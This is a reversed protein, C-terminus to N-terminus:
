AEAKGILERVARLLLGDDFAGKAVFYDAGAQAGRVRDEPNEKYSVIMVPISKLRPDNKILTALEIGDMRPMDVDTIVLDYDCRRVADWGAMGDVAVETVYGRSVLLRRELDRVTPSDEVALIRKARGATPGTIRQLPELGVESVLREVSRVIDEVDVILVPSGDEMISGASIDQVKGLRSDLAQAVLEREGLFRDVVLGYRNSRGGLVVVSLQDAFRPPEPLGFVQHATLLGVHQDDLTFYQRGGLVEIQQRAIKLIRNIQSLPVAYSENAVEVLLTRLVSLTLPLQLQIRTGRGHETAIRVTGRVSRVLSQVVDLGVGRGSIETVESKLTFGPVLLFQLLDAESMTALRTRGALGKRAITDRLRDLPVGRGDDAVTILLMGATHRAELRITCEAPKGARKREPPFECGHDAANRLLHVLPLELKELIESDVLTNEGLIELRVEKELLHALDRIMRPVRRLGDGFPRMRCQLVERYLRHSLGAARRDFLDLDVLRDALFRRCEMAQGIARNTRDECGAPLREAALSERLRDLTELLDTQMRKLSLLSNAFPHFWRSESLSEGTLGLLRDLSEATMRLVGEKESKRYFSPFTSPESAELGGPQFTPSPILARCEPNDPPPLPNGSKPASQGSPNLPPLKSLTIATVAALLNNVSAPTEREWQAMELESLQAVRLSLDLGRFLTDIADRSLHIQRQQVAVFCDEMAHALSVVMTRNVIRAAGKISHAARMLAELHHIAGPNRELELLGSTIIATQNEVEAQFLTLLPLHSLDNPGHDKM